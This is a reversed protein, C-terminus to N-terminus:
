TRSIERGRSSQKVTRSKSGGEQRPAQSQSLHSLRSPHLRLKRQPGPETSGQNAPTTARALKDTHKSKSKTTMKKNKPENPSVPIM